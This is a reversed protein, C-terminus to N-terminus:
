ANTGPGDLSGEALVTGDSARVRWRGQEGEPGLGLQQEGFAQATAVADIRGWVDRRVLWGREAPFESSAALHWGDPGPASPQPGTVEFSLSLHDGPKPDPATISGTLPDATMRSATFAAVPRARNKRIAERVHERHGLRKRTAYDLEVRLGTIEGDKGTFGAATGTILLIEGDRYSYAFRVETWGSLDALIAPRSLDWVSM